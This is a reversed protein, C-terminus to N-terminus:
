IIFMMCKYPDAKIINNHITESVNELLAKATFVLLVTVYTCCKFTVLRQKNGSPSLPTACPKIIQCWATVQLSKAKM